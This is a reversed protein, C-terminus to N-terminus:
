MDTDSDNEAIKPTTKYITAISESSVLFNIHMSCLWWCLVVPTSQFLKRAYTYYLVFSAVHKDEIYIKCRGHPKYLVM